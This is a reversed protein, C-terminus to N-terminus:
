RLTLLMPSFFFLIRLFNCNVCDSILHFHPLVLGFRHHHPGVRLVVRELDLGMATNKFDLM